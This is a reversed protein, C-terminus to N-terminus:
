RQPRPPPYVIMRGDPLRLRLPVGQRFQLQRYNEGVVPVLQKIYKDPGVLDDYTANEVGRDLYYRNAAAQLQRLNNLVAGDQSAQRARQFAPIAMAAIVGITVPNYVAAMAVDQKLSRNWHSRILVGDPLNTRVAVQPEKAAALQAAILAFSRKLPPAANPNLQELQRLRAFLRPSCYSLGNGEAGVAAVARQFDPNQDLGSQRQVCELLFARTTAVYLAGGDVALTPQLSPVPLPTKLEFLQMTGVQSAEVNPLKALAGALAPGIGDIRMLLSFDPVTLPQGAPITINKEPDLRLVVVTRGKFNQILELVSLDAPRGAERLKAEMLNAMADGAVRAVVTKVTTYVANLDLDAEGYLDTDAPALKTHIFPGPAGGLVALLGHRGGPTYLFAANRFGGTAAPVSSFGVAKIDTLGLDAFLKAYDQQLMAAVAAPQGASVNEAMTHLAAALKLADGDLDAYGYLTGGLELHRSVAAFNKSREAPPVLAVSDPEQAKPAPATTSKSCGAGALVAALAWGGVLKRMM